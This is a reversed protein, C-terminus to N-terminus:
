VLGVGSKQLAQILQTQQKTPIQEMLYLLLIRLLENVFTWFFVMAAQVQEASMKKMEEARIKINGDYAEITYVDNKKEVVPRYLIAMLEPLHKELGNKMFTEIDAYEGLTIEELNPHFGYEKGNIVIIRKLLSSQKEQLATLKSMILAVDQISLENILNKPIDSLTAVTELAEKSKSAKQLDLLRLWSKLNVDQWSEIIKFEKTKGKKKIKVKM